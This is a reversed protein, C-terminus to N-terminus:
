VGQFSSFRCKLFSIIYLESRRLLLNAGEIKSLLSITEDYRKNKFAKVAVTYLMRTTFRNLYKNEDKIRYWSEYNYERKGTLYLSNVTFLKYIMLPSNIYSIRTYLATQVWFDIDEGLDYGEKFYINNDIILNRSISVSSTLAISHKYKCCLQFFDEDYIGAKDFLLHKAKKGDPHVDVRGTCVMQNTPYLNIANAVEQLYSNDWIDDADLFCIYDGNALRIGYNRAHSVGGNPITFVRFRSDEQFKEAISLSNDTSADNVIICEFNGYSQNRVSELTQEIYAEKNYLPVIVSFKVM